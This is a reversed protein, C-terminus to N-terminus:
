GMEIHYPMIVHARDSIIVHDTRAGRKEIRDIEDLFVKPDVVLVQNWNCLADAQLM